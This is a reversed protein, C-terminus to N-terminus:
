LDLEDKFFSNSTLKGKLTRSWQQNTVFPKFSTCATGRFRVWFPCSFAATFLLLYFILGCYKKYCVYWNRNNWQASGSAIWRVAASENSQEKQVEPASKSFDSCKQKQGLCLQQVSSCLHTHSRLFSFCVVMVSVCEIPYYQNSSITCLLQVSSMLYLSSGWNGNTYSLLVPPYPM